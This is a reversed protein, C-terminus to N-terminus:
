FGMYAGSGIRESLGPFLIDEDEAQIIIEPRILLLTTLEFKETARNTFFRNLWPVKSLVPVGVEVEVENVRRQGGLLITGKDPVSVTTMIQTTQLQPLQIVGEFTSARGGGFDGGGAAGTVPVDRFQVNENLAFQVTMTVYRRDASIVAEVDFVFGEFAIGPVPDFGGSSDGTIPILNEIYAIQKAVSIWSRQGNFLTLRPATLVVSRLDAQTATILLDVQIDDLFSLGVALAPNSLAAIGTASTFAGSAIQGVLNDSEQVMGIPAWGSSGGQGRRQRGVPAGTPGILYDIGTGAADPVGFMAGTAATNVVGGPAGVQGPAGFIVPNKPVASGPNFFNSLQFNPDVALAQNYM